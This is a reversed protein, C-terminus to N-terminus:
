EGAFQFQTKLIPICRTIKTVNGEFETELTVTVTKIGISTDPIQFSFDAKGNEDTVNYFKHVQEDNYRVEWSYIHFYLPVDDPSTIEIQVTVLDGPLYIKKNSTIAINASATKEGDTESFSLIKKGQPLNQSDAEIYVLLAIAGSLLSLCLPLMTPTKM